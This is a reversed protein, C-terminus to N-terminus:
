LVGGLLGAASINSCDIGRSESFAAERGSNSAESGRAIDIAGACAALDTSGGSGGNGAGDNAASNLEDPKSEGGTRAQSRGASKLAM